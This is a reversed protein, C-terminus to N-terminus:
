VTVHEAGNLPTRLFEDFSTTLPLFMLASCFIAVPGAYINM